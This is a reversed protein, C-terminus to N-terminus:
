ELVLDVVSEHASKLYTSSNVTSLFKLGSSASQFRLVPSEDADDNLNDDLDDADREVADDEVAVVGLAAQCLGHIHTVAGTRIQVQSL